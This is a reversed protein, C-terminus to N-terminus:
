RSATTSSGEVPLHGLVLLLKPIQGGLYALPVLSVLFTLHYWVPFKSWLMVHQPVFVIVLLVGAMVSALMSRRAVIAAVRGAGLTACSRFLM